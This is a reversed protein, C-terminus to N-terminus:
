KCFLSIWVLWVPPWRYLSVEEGKLIGQSLLVRPGTNYLLKCILIVRCFHSKKVWFLLNENGHRQQFHFYFLFLEMYTDAINVKEVKAMALDLIEFNQVIEFSVSIKTTFKRFSRLCFWFNVCYMWTSHIRLLIGYCVM